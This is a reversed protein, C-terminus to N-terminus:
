NDEGGIIPIPLEEIGLIQQLRKLIRGQNKLSEILESVEKERVDMKMEKGKSEKGNL